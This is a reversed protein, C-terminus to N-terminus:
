CFRRMCLSTAVRRNQLDTVCKNAFDACKNGFVVRKNLCRWTLM